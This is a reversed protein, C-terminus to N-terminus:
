ILLHESHCDEQWFVFGSRAKINKFISQLTSEEVNAIVPLKTEVEAIAAPCECCVKAIVYNRLVFDCSTLDPLRALWSTPGCKRIWRHSLKLDLYQRATSAFPLPASGQQFTM